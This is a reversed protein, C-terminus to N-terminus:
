LIQSAILQAFSTAGTREIDRSMMRYVASGMYENVRLSAGERSVFDSFGYDRLTDLAFTNADVELDIYNRLFEEENGKLVTKFYRDELIGQSYQDGHRSEHLAIFAKVLPPAFSRSNVCVNNGWFFVGLIPLNTKFPFYHINFNPRKERWLQIYRGSEDQSLGISSTFERIDIAPPLLSLIDSEQVSENLGVFSPYDKIHIM